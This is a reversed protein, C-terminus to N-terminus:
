YEKYELVFNFKMNDNLIYNIEFSSDLVNIKTTSLKMQLKKNEKILDIECFTEKVLNFDFVIKSMGEVTRSLIINSENLILEVNTNSDKYVIRNDNYIGQTTCIKTEKDTINTIKSVIKIKSM